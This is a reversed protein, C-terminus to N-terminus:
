KGFGLSSWDTLTELINKTREYNERLDEISDNEGLGNKDFHDCIFTDAEDLIGSDLLIKFFLKGNVWYKIHEDNVKISLNTRTIVELKMKTITIPSEELYFEM